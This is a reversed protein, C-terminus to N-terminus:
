AFGSVDWFMAGALGKNQVYQAKLKAINPTDYSVLERKSSDYSHSAIDTTNEYVAAGALPLASYSYIGAQLTGPGIQTFHKSYVNDHIKM